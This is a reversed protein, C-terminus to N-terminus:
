NWESLIDDVWNVAATYYDSVKAKNLELENISKDVEVWDASEFKIILNYLIFYNNRVGKIADKIEEKLPLANLAIDIPKNLVGDIMSFMGMLFIENKNYCNLDNCLYEGMKARVLSIRILEGPKDQCMDYLLVLYMFKRLENFGLFVLAQKLSEVKGPINYSVSNVMRLLKYSLSIDRQVIETIVDYDPEVRNLENIIHLSHLKFSPIEKDELIEPKSFFYGQFYDFGMNYAETFDDITEVREALLRVGFSNMKYVIDERDMLSNILFDVKVIDIYKILADFMKYNILTYDDLAIKYGKKKLESCVRVLDINSEEPMIEIIMDKSNLLTPIDYNLLMDTFKVYVEKGGAVKDIGMTIFSNMIVTASTSDRNFIEFNEKKHRRYFLEYAVQQKQRNFIPQRAVYIDVNDGVLIMEKSIKDKILNHM